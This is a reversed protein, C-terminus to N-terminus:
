AVEWSGKAESWCKEPSQELPVHPVAGEWFALLALGRLGAGTPARYMQRSGSLLLAPPLHGQLQPGPSRARRPLLLLYMQAAPLGLAQGWARPVRLATHQELSGEVPFVLLQPQRAQGWPPPSLDQCLVKNHGQARLPEPFPLTPPALSRHPGGCGTVNLEPSPAPLSVEAGLAWLSSPARHPPSPARRRGSPRPWRPAESRLVWSRLNSQPNPRHLPPFAGTEM